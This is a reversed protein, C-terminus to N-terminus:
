LENSFNSINNDPNQQKKEIVGLLINSLHKYDVFNFSNDYIFSSIEQHIQSKKTASALQKKDIETIKEILAKLEDNNKQYNEIISALTKVSETQEITKLKETAENLKTDNYKVAVSNKAEFYIKLAEWKKKVADDTNGVFLADKEIMQMTYSAMLTELSGTYAQLIKDSVEKRGAAKGEEIGAEEGAEYQDDMEEKCTIAGNKMSDIEALQKEILDDQKSITENNKNIETEKKKIEKENKAKQAKLEKVAKSDPQAYGEISCVVLVSCLFLTRLIFKKM